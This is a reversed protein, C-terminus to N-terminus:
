WGPACQKGKTGRPHIVSPLHAAVGPLLLIPLPYVLHLLHGTLPRDTRESLRPKGHNRCPPHTPEVLFLILNRGGLFCVGDWELLFPSVCICSASLFSLHFDDHQPAQYQNQTSCPPFLPVLSSWNILSQKLSWASISLLRLSMWSEKRGTSPVACSSLDPTAKGDEDRM